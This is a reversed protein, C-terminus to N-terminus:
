VVSWIQYLHHNGSRRYLTVNGHDNVVAVNGVHEKPISALDDVVIGGDDELAERWDEGLWYGYAAGDGPSAGFYFYEPAYENLADILLENCDESAGESEFYGDQEMRAEIERVLTRHARKLPRQYKLEWVFAPVLDETRSTGNSVPGINPQQRKAM